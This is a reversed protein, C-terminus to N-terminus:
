SIPGAFIVIIRSGCFIYMKSSGFRALHTKLAPWAIGGDGGSAQGLIFPNRGQFGTMSIARSERL